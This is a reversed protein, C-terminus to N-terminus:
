PDPRSPKGGVLDSIRDLLPAWRADFAATRETAKARRAADYRRRAWRSTPRALRLAGWWAVFPVFAGFLAMRLKGKLVCVVILGLTVLTAAIAGFRTALEQSGVRDVGFPAVGVITFALCAFALSVMEVSVRGEDSWYVDQLRLILAFEDLVLSSGAGVLVAAGAHWVTDASTGVAAFAGTALTLIGPVAHHVHVGGASVNDKFPGVGARIMRTITRTVAFTVVFSALSLLLPLKGPEVVNRHWWASVAV